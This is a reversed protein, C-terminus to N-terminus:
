LPLDFYKKLDQNNELQDAIVYLADKGIKQDVKLMSIYEECNYPYVWVSNQLRFFGFTRLTDRIKDRTARRREKIDFTLMRWKGDWWRPKKPVKLMEFQRRGKESLRANKKTKADVEIYGENVLQWFVSQAHFLKNSLKRGTVTTKLLSLVSPAIAVVAFMGPIAITALIAQRTVSWRTRRRSKTELNDM